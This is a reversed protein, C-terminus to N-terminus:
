PKLNNKQQDSDARSEPTYITAMFADRDRQRVAKHEPRGPGIVQRLAIMMKLDDTEPDIPFGAEALALSQTLIAVDAEARLRRERASRLAGEVVKDARGGYRAKLGRREGPITNAKQLGVEKSASNAYAAALEGLVRRREELSVAIGKREIYSSNPASERIM